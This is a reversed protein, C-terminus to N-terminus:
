LTKTYQITLEYVAGVFYNSSYIRVGNSDNGVSLYDTGDYYPIQFDFNDKTCEGNHKVLKKVYTTNPIYYIRNDQTFNLTREYLTEGFYTGVIKENGDYHHAPVGLTTYAGSGANDTTKTYQITIVVNKYYTLIGNGVYFALANMGDTIYNTFAKFSDSEYYPLDLKYKGNDHIVYGEEYVVNEVNLSSLDLYSTTNTLEFYFTKQYLPKNDTWVGVVREETSYIIPQFYSAESGSQLGYVTYGAGSSATYTTQYSFVQGKKMYVIGSTANIYQGYQGGVIIGDLKIFVDTNTDNPIYYAVACDKTATYTHIQTDTINIFPQIVNDADVFVGFYTSGGGGGGQIEYVTGDIGLKTLTDTATGSPNAEVESGGSDEANEWKQTTANYKLIQGNALNTFSVDELEAIEDTDTASIVGDIITINDGAEYAEYIQWKGDVKGYIDKIGNVFSGSISFNTIDSDILYGDVCKPYSFILDNTTGATFTFSFNHSENDPYLDAGESESETQVYIRDTYGSYFDGNTFKQTFTVTYSNGEILGHLPYTVHDWSSNGRIQQHFDYSTASRRTVEYTVMGGGVESYEQVVDESNGNMRLYLDHENGLSNSPENLGAYVKNGGEATSSITLTNGDRSISINEGAQIGFSAVNGSVTTSGNLLVDQLGITRGVYDAVSIINGEIVVNDGAILRQESGSGKYNTSVIQGVTKSLQGVEVKTNYGRICDYTLGVVREEFREGDRSEIEVKDGLHIRELNRYAKYEATKSLDILDATLNITPLDWGEDEFYYECQGTMFDYLEQYAETLKSKVLAINATYIEDALWAITESKKADMDVLYGESDFYCWENDIKMWQSKLYVMGLDKDTNGFWHKGTQEDVLDGWPYDPMSHAPDADTYGYSDFWYYTGDIFAWRDHLYKSKDDASAGEEGFWIGDAASGHWGYNSEGSSDEDYWGEEDYWWQRMTGEVTMFVYENHAYYRERNGYWWKGNEQSQYWGMDSVNKYDEWYGDNNFYYYEKGIKIYCNKAYAKAPTESDDGYWWAHPIVSTDEHWEWDNLKEKSIWSVANKACSKVFSQWSKITFVFKNQLYESLGGEGSILTKVYEAKYTNTTDNVIATWIAEATATMADTMAVRWQETKNSLYDNKTKDTDILNINLELFRSRVFPYDLGQRATDVYQNGGQDTVDAWTNLRIGEKSIPYLRTVVSSTDIEYTLGMLNRGYRIPYARANNQDGIIDLIKIKYSDYIVEGGWRNVFSNDDSGSIAAILNTNNWKSWTRFTINSSITYKNNADVTKVYNDLTAAAQAGTEDTINLYQIPADYTAELAIPFAIVTISTLTKKTDYIRFLQTNSEWEGIFDLNTVRLIADKVLHKYRQEKDFPHELELQWAGNIGVSIECSLPILTALGNNNFTTTSGSYVNIM